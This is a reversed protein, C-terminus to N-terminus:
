VREEGTQQRYLHFSVLLTYISLVLTLVSIGLKAGQLLPEPALEVAAKLGLDIALSILGVAIVSLLVGQILRASRNMCEVEQKLYKEDFMVVFPYFSLQVSRYLGPLLLFVAWILVSTLVRLSEVTLEYVHKNSFIWISTLPQRKEIDIVTIPAVFLVMASVFLDTVMEGAYGLMRLMDAGPANNSSFAAFYQKFFYSLLLIFILWPWRYRVVHITNIGARHLANKLKKWSGPGM